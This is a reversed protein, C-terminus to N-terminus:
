SKAEGSAHWAALTDTEKKPDLGAKLTAQRDAPLTRFWAMTDHVTEQLPRSKLGTQAARKM